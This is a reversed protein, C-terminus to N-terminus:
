KERMLCFSPWLRNWGLGWTPQEPQWANQNPTAVPSHPSSCIVESTLALLPLLTTLCCCNLCTSLWPTSRTVLPGLVWPCVLWTAKTKFRTKLLRHPCLRDLSTWQPQEYAALDLVPHWLVPFYLGVWFLLKLYHLFGHAYSTRLLHTNNVPCLQTLFALVKSRYSLTLALGPKVKPRLSFTSM